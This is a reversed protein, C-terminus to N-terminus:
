QGHIVVKPKYGELKKLQKALAAKKKALQRDVDAEAEALSHWAERGVTFSYHGYCGRPRIMREGDPPPDCDVEVIGQSLGFKSIWFKM